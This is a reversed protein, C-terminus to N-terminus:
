ELMSTCVVVYPANQWALGSENKFVLLCEYKSLTEGYGDLSSGVIVFRAVLARNERM